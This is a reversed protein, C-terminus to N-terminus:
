PPPAPIVVRFRAGARGDDYFIAGGHAQAFSQAIALGLGTGEGTGGAFRDFLRERLEVPVGEGHDEVELRFHRDTQQATVRVPAAGHRLANTVLNGLIRDLATPDLRARLDRPVVVAVDDAREGAVQEVLQEVHERVPLVSPEIEIAGADLRSLDLLQDLLRVLKATHNHLLEVLTAGTDGALEDPRAHLTAAIGHIVTAPARLEHAALAVYGELARTRARLEALEGREGM